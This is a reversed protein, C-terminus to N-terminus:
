AGIGHRRLNLILEVQGTPRQMMAAIEAASMGQDAMEFIGAFDPDNPVEGTLSRPKPEPRATQRAPRAAGAHNLGRAVQTPAHPKADLTATLAPSVAASPARDAQLEAIEGRARDLISELRSVRAEMARLRPDDTPTEAAASRKLRLARGKLGYVVLMIGLVVGCGAVLLSGVPAAALVLMQANM